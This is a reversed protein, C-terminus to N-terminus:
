DRTLGCLNTLFSREDVDHFGVVGGIEARHFEPLALAVVYNYGFSDVCVLANDEGAL